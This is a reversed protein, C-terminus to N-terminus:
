WAGRVNRRHCRVMKDCRGRDRKAAHFPCAFAAGEPGTGRHGIGHGISEAWQAHAQGLYRERGLAEAPGDLGDLRLLALSTLGRGGPLMTCIGVREKNGDPMRFAIIYVIARAACAMAYLHQQRDSAM